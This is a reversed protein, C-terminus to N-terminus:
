EKDRMEKKKDFREKKLTLKKSIFGADEKRKSKFSNSKKNTKNKKLVVGHM